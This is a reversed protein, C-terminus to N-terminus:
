GKPPVLALHLEDLQAQSVTAPAGMLLDQAKITMPFTVVDRLSDAGALLM